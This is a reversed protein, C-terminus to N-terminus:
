NFYNLASNYGIDILKQKDEDTVGFNLVHTVHETEICITHEKYVYSLTTEKEKQVIYCKMINYIYSEFSDIKLDINHSEFEGNSILKLGLVNDLEDNFLKIPYNNILSGDVHIDGNYEKITFLFPVSISMRIADKIRLDPTNIYDFITYNYKNLNSALVQLNINKILYLQKFTITKSYGKKIILSDIWDMVRKGTDFGYKNLINKIKFNRITELDVSNLEELLETYTYGLVYLFGVISGISVGCVKKINFKPLRKNDECLSKDKIEDLCKIVGIYAIGKIGGGSFVLTNIENKM